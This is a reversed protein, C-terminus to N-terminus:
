DKKSETIEFLQVKLRKVEALLMEIEADKEKILKDTFSSGFWLSDLNFQRSRRENNFFSKRGGQGKLPKTPLWIFSRELETTDEKLRLKIVNDKASLYYRKIV